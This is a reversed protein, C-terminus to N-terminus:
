WLLFDAGGEGCYFGRLPLNVIILNIELQAKQQQQQKKVRSM